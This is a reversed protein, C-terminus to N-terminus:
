ARLVAASGAVSSCCGSLPPAPASSHPRWRGLLLRRLVLPKHVIMLCRRCARGGALQSGAGLLSEVTSTYFALLQSLRFALLPPPASMLVQEIRVQAACDCPLLKPSSPAILLQLDLTPLQQWFLCGRPFRPMHSCGVLLNSAAAFVICCPHLGASGLRRWQFRASGVKLPRCVSEFVADLLQPITPAGEATSLFGADLSGSLQSQAQPQQQQQSLLQQQERQQQQQQQTNDDGFLSLLFEQESALSAHVWALM